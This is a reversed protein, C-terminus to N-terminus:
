KNEDNREKFQIWKKYMEFNKKYMQHAKEDPYYTEAPKVLKQIGEEYNQFLGITTGVVIASGITGADYNALRIVPMNLINAKIQLWKKNKSGGGNAFM